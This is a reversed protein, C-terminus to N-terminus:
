DQVLYWKIRPKCCKREKDEASTLKIKGIRGQKHMFISLYAHVTQSPYRKTGAAFRAQVEAIIESAFMGAAIAVTRLETTEIGSPFVAEREALIEAILNAVGHLGTAMNFAHPMFIPAVNQATTLVNGIDQANGLLERQMAIASKIASKESQKTKTKM